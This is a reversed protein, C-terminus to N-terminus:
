QAIQLQALVCETAASVASRQVRVVHELAVLTQFQNKEESEGCVRTSDVLRSKARHAKARM